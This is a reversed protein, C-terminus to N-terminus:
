LISSMGKVHYKMLLKLDEMITKEDKRNLSINLVGDILNTAIVNMIYYDESDVPHLVDKRFHDSLKGAVKEKANEYKTGKSCNMVLFLDEKGGLLYKYVNESLLNIFAESGFEEDFEHGLFIDLFGELQGYFMKVLSDFIEEKSSFYNYLDSKSEGAHKAIERMSVGEFGNKLFLLRASEEIRDRIEDKLVQM